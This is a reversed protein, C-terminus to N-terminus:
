VHFRVGDCRRGSAADFVLTDEAEFDLRIAEGEKLSPVSTAELFRVLGADSDASYLIERGMPEIATVRASLGTESVKLVAKWGVESSAPM